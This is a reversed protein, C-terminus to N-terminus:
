CVLQLLLSAERWVEDEELEDASAPTANALTGADEEHPIPVAKVSVPLHHDKPHQRERTPGCRERLFPLGESRKARHGCVAATCKLAHTHHM